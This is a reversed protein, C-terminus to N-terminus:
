STNASQPLNDGGSNAEYSDPDCAPAIRTQRIHDDTMEEYRNTLDVTQLRFLYSSGAMGRFISSRQEASFPGEIPQWATGDQQYEIEFYDIQDAGSLVEWELPVATSYYLPQLQNMRTIVATSAPQVNFQLTASNEGMFNQSWVTWTYEDAPLRGVDWKNSEQWDISTKYGGAGNLESRFKLGNDAKWTLTILITKM